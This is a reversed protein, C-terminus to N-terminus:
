AAEQGAVNQPHRAQTRLFPLSVTVLLASMLTILVIIVQHLSHHFLAIGTILLGAFVIQLWGTNAIKHAMEYAMLVVAIAYAATGTAYLALLPEAQAFGPGFLTKMVMGPALALVGLFGLFIAGVLGLPVALVARRPQTGGDQAAVPFM